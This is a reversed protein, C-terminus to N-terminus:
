DSGHRLMTLDANVWCLEFDGNCILKGDVFIKHMTQRGDDIETPVRSATAAAKKAAPKDTEAAM